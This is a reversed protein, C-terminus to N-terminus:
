CHSPFLALRAFFGQGADILHAAPAVPGFGHRRRRFRTDRRLLGWEKIPILSIELAQPWGIRRVGAFLGSSLRPPSFDGGQEM